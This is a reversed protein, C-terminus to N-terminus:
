DLELPAAKGKADIRFAYTGTGLEVLLVAFRERTVLEIGKVMDVGGVVGDQVGGDFVISAPTSALDKLPAVRLKVSDDPTCWVLVARGFASGFRTHKPQGIPGTAGEAVECGAASCREVFLKGTHHQHEDVEVSTPGAPGDSCWLFGYLSKVHMPKSWRGDKYIAMVNSPYDHSVAFLGTKTKCLEQIWRMGELPESRTHGDTTYVVPRDRGTEHKFGLGFRYAYAGELWKIKETTAPEGRKQTILLTTRGGDVAISVSGDARSVAARARPVDAVLEGSVRYVKQVSPANVFSSKVLVLLDGGPEVDGALEVYDSPGTPIQAPLPACRASTESITCLKATEGRLLFLAPGETNTVQPETLIEKPAVFPTVGKLGDATLPHAPAPPPPVDPAPGAVVGQKGAEVWIEEVEVASPMKLELTAALPALHFALDHVYKNNRESKELRSRLDRAYPACRAPWDGGWQKPDKSKPADEAVLQINHVRVSPTEGPRLPDGVLCVSLQSWGENLARDIQAERVHHYTLGGGALVVAGGLV